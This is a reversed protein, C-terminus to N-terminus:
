PQDDDHVAVRLAAQAVRLEGELHAVREKLRAVEREAVDARREARNAREEARERATVESELRAELEDIRKDARALSAEMRTMVSDFDERDVVREQLSTTAKNGKATQRYALLAVAVSGAALVLSSLVAPNM